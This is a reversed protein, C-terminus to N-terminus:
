KCKCYKMKKQLRSLEVSIKNRERELVLINASQKDFDQKLRGFDTMRKSVPDELVHGQFTKVWTGARFELTPAEHKRASGDNEKDATIVRLFSVCEGTEAVLVRLRDLFADLAGNADVRGFRAEEIERGEDSSDACNERAVSVIRRQLQQKSYVLKKLLCDGVMYSEESAANLGVRGAKLMANELEHIHTEMQALWHWLDDLLFDVQNTSIGM